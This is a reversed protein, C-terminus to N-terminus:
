FFILFQEALVADNLHVVGTQLARDDQTLIRPQVDHTETRRHLRRVGRLLTCEDLRYYGEPFQQFLGELINGPFPLFTFFYFSLSFFHLNTQCIQM